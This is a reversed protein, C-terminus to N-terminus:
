SAFAPNKMLYYNIKVNHNYDKFLDNETGFDSMKRWAIEIGPEKSHISNLDVDANILYTTTWFYHGDDGPPCWASYLTFMSEPQLILGTEEFTERIAAALDTEGDDVKGGPLGWKVDNRRTASLFKGDKVLFICVARRM